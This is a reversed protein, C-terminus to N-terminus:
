PRRGSKTVKIKMSEGEHGTRELSGQDASESRRTKRWTKFMSVISFRSKKVPLDKKNYQVFVKLVPDNLDPEEVVAVAANKKSRPVTTIAINKVYRRNDTTKSVRRLDRVRCNAKM